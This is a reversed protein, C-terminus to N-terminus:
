KRILLMTWYHGNPDYGIGIHTYVDNLINKRHGDSEMWASLVQAPSSFGYALNEGAYTYYIGFYDLMQFPTGYTPSEHAFYQQVVMDESKKRAVYSLSIDTELPLLGHKEREANALQIVEREIELLQHAGIPSEKVPPDEKKNQEDNTPPNNLFVDKNGTTHNQNEDKPQNNKEKPAPNENVSPKPNEKSTEENNSAVVVSEKTVIVRKEDVSQFELFDSEVFKTQNKIYSQQQYESEIIPKERKQEITSNFVSALIKEEGLNYVFFIGICGIILFFGLFSKLKSFM